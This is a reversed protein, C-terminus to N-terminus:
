RRLYTEVLKINLNLKLWGLLFLHPTHSTQYLLVDVGYSIKRSHLYIKQTM